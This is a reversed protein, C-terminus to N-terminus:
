LHCEGPDCRSYFERDALQEGSGLQLVQQDKSGYRFVTIGKLGVEWAKRYISEIKEATTDAPLNITKSVANDVHKQFATQIQLHFEPPIELATKFLNKISPELLPVRGLHGEQRIRNILAESYFGKEKAISVFLPNLEFFDRGDLVGKRSYALAFLPEISASTGALISLTGTPAISTLTANRLRLKKKAYTSMKWNPFVGREKALAHSVESSRKYIFDMLQEAFHLAEDSTYAIGLLILMEAFGMVGLGIKRNGAVAQAISPESWQAVDILNDLFRVALGVTEGLKEWDVVWGKAGQRMMRKLNISGLNCAEYPLLPVEGCPNTAEIAGLRSLPNRRAIEDLFILGPDGCAWAAKAMSSLLSAADTHSVIKRTEPDRLPFRAGSQAARMFTDTVAVSLNFNPFSKGDLKAEVFEMIDPHDVRLVGMNAGRRKGGQRINQTATDFIRMFSVPGSANGGTSTVRSGKARLRSFSFGTGGGSQQIKAMMALSRFIEEISDEVPLVFCAALQNLRLGANMLTPSNPLFDLQSLLAYFKEEWFSAEKRGAHKLEAKAVHRAVRRFLDLPTEVIEGKKDRKLFRAIWVQKATESFEASGTSFAM